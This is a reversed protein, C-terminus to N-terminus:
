DLFKMITEVLESWKKRGQALHVWGVDHCGTGKLDAKINDELRRRIRALPEV